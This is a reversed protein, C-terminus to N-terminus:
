MHDKGRNEVGRGLGLINRDPNEHQGIVLNHTPEIRQIQPEIEVRAEQSLLM